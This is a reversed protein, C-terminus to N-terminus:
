RVFLVQHGCLRIQLRALLSSEAILAQRPSATSQSFARSM